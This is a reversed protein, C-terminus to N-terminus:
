YFFFLFLYSPKLKNQFNEEFISRPSFNTISSNMMNKVSAMESNIQASGLMTRKSLLAPTELSNLTNNNNNNKKSNLKRELEFIKTKLATNEDYIKSILLEKQNKEIQYFKNLFKLKEIEKQQTKILTRMEEIQKHRDFNQYDDNTIYLENNKSINKTIANSSPTLIKIKQLYNQDFDESNNKKKTNSSSRAELRKKVRKKGSLSFYIERQDDYM